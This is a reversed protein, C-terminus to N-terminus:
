LGGKLAEKKGGRLGVKKRRKGGEARPQREQKGREEVHRLVKFIFSAL